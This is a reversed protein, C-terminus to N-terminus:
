LRWWCAGLFPALLLLLSTPLYTSRVSRGALRVSLARTPLYTAHGFSTYFTHLYTPLNRPRLGRYYAPLYLYNTAESLLHHRGLGLYTSFSRLAPSVREGQSLLEPQPSLSELAKDAFIVNQPWTSLVMNFDSPLSLYALGSYMSSIVSKM